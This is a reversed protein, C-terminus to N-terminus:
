LHCYNILSQTTTKELKCTEGSSEEHLVAGVSDIILNDPHHYADVTGNYGM